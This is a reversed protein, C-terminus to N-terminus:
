VGQFLFHRTFDQQADVKSQYAANSQSITYYNPAAVGGLRASDYAQETPGIYQPHPDGTTDNVHTNAERLDIATLVHDVNTGSQHTAATTGDYGRGSAAVTLTNGSRSAILVKEEAAVGLEFAVVFPGTAGTPYGTADSVVINTSAATIDGSLATRRAGGAFERIAM